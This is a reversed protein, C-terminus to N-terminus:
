QSGVGHHARVHAAANRICSTLTGDFRLSHGYILLVINGVPRLMMTM